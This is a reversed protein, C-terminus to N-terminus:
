VPLSTKSENCLTQLMICAEAVTIRQSPDICLLGAVIRNMRPSLNFWPMDRHLSSGKSSYSEFDPCKSTPELFPLTGTLLSYVFVGLAWADVAKLDCVHYPQMHYMEPALYPVTGVSLDHLQMIHKDSQLTIASGFDILKVRGDNGVCVNESKIDRHVMNSRHMFNLADCVGRIARLAVEEPLGENVPIYNLLDGHEYFEFILAPQGEGLKGPLEFGLMRGVHPHGELTTHAMIETDMIMSLTEITRGYMNLRKVAVQQQTDPNMGLFVVATSGEQMVKVVKHYGAPYQRPSSLRNNNERSVASGRVSRDNLYPPYPDHMNHRGTDKQVLITVM